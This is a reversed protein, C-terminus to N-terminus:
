GPSEALLKDIFQIGTKTEVDAEKPKSKALAMQDVGVRTEDRGIASLHKTVLAGISMAPTDAAKAAIREEDSGAMKAMASTLTQMGTLLPSVAEAIASAVEERTAYAATPQPEDETPPVPAPEEEKTQKFELGAVRAVQAKGELDSELEAIKEASIGVKRLHDKKADPITM